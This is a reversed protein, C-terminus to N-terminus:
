NNKVMLFDLVAVQSAKFVSSCLVNNDQRSTVCNEEFQNSICLYIQAIYGSNSCDTHKIKIFSLSDYSDYQTPATVWLVVCDSILFLQQNIPDLGIQLLTIM